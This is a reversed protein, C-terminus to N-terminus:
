IVCSYICVGQAEHGAVPRSPQHPGPTTKPAVKSAGVYSPGPLCTIAHFHMIVYVVKVM